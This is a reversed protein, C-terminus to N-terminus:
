RAGSRFTEAFRAVSTAGAAPVGHVDPTQSPTLGHVAQVMGRRKLPQMEFDSHLVDREHPEGATSPYACTSTLHGRQEGVPSRQHREMLQAGVKVTKPHMPADPVSLLRPLLALLRAPCVAGRRAATGKGPKWAISPRPTACGAAKLGIRVGMRKAVAPELELLDGALGLDILSRRPHESSPPFAVTM